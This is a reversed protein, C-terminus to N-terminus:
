ILGCNNRLWLYKSLPMCSNRSIKVTDSIIQILKQIIEFTIANKNLILFVTLSFLLCLWYLYRVLKERFERKEWVTFMRGLSMIQCIFHLVIRLLNLLSIRQVLMLRRINKAVGLLNTYLLCYFIVLGCFWIM